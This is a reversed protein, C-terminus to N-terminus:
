PLPLPLLQLSSPTFIQVWDVLGLDKNRYSNSVVTLASAQFIGARTWIRCSRPVFDGPWELHSRYWWFCESLGFGCQARSTNVGEEGCGAWVWTGLAGTAAPPEFSGQEGQHLCTYVGPSFWTWAWTQNSDPYFGGEHRHKLPWKIKEITTQFRCEFPRNQALFLRMYDKHSWWGPTANNGSKLHPFQLEPVHLFKGLAVQYTLLSQPMLVCLLM